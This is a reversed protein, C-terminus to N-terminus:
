CLKMLPILNRCKWSKLLHLSDFNLAPNITHGIILIQFQVLAVLVTDLIRLWSYIVMILRWCIHVFRNNATELIFFTKNKFLWIKRYADFIYSALTRSYHPWRSSSSSWYKKIYIQLSVNELNLGWWFKCPQTSGFSGIQHPHRQLFEMFRTCFSDAEDRITRSSM